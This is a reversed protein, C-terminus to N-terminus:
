VKPGSVEDHGGLFGFMPRQKFAVEAGPDVAHLKPVNVVHVEARRVFRQRDKGTADM